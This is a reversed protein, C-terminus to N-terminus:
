GDGAAVPAPQDDDDSGDAARREAPKRIAGLIGKPRYWVTWQVSTGDPGPQLRFRGQFSRYPGGEVVRYEYGLGDVWATIEEIFDKGGTAPTCRRRTGQGTQQDDPRLHHPLGCEV